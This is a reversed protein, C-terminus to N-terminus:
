PLGRMLRTAQEQRFVAHALHPLDIQLDPALGARRIIGDDWARDGLALVVLDRLCLHGAAPPAELAVSRVARAEASAERVTALAAALPMADGCVRRVAEMLLYGVSAPTPASVVDVLDLAMVIAAHPAALGRYGRRLSPSYMAESWWLADLRTQDTRRRSEARAIVERTWAQQTVLADNLSKAFNKQSETLQATLQQQGQRAAKAVADLEEALLTHMRNAFEGTWHQNNQPWYPNPNPFHTGQADHPGATAGVRMRLSDRDAKYPTSTISVNASVTPAFSPAGAAAGETGVRLTRQEVRAGVAELWAHVGREERGLRMQPLADAATLWVIADAGEREAAQACAELLIARELPVPPDVHVSRLTKWEALLAAEAMQIAPDDAPVAPDLGALVARLLAKPDSGLSQALAGAAREMKQLRADDGDLSSILGATVLENFLGTM